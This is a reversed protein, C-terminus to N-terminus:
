LCNKLLHALYVLSGRPLLKLCINPINEFACDRKLKLLYLPECPRVRELLSDDVYTLWAQSRLDGGFLAHHEDCVDHCTFQYELCNINVKENM